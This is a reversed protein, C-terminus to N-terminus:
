SELMGRAGVEFFVQSHSDIKTRTLGRPAADQAARAGGGRHARARRLSGAFTHIYSNRLYIYLLYSQLM